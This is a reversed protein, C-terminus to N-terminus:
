KYFRTRRYSVVRFAPAVGGNEAALVESIAATIAAVVAGEDSATPVAPISIEEQPSALDAKAARRGEFAELAMRFLSLAGWLIALAVFVTAMGILTMRGAYALREGLNMTASLSMMM